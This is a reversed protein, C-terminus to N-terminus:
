DEALLLDVVLCIALIVGVWWHLWGKESMWVIAVVLFFLPTM